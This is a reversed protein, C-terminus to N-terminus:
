ASPSTEYRTMVAQLRNQQASVPNWQHYGAKMCQSVIALSM